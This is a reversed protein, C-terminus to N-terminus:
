FLSFSGVALATPPEAGASCLLLGPTPSLRLGLRLAVDVLGRASGPMRVSVPGSTGAATSDLAAAADAATLGAVPGIGGGPFLYSYAVARGDRGWITRVGTEAWYAHDVARDFGYAAADILPLSGEAGELAQLRVSAGDPTGAFALLPAVAILGRRGYLANSVPQIADTITRRRAARADWVEDLLRTGLGRAQASRDVFLSALFWDDGRTWAAAFGAITGDREAVVSTGTSLVHLHQSSFVEFPPTPPDFGHPRFVGGISDLFLAHLAHVDEATTPRLEV